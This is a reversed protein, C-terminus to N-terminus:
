PARAGYHLRHLRATSSELDVIFLNDYAKSPLEGVDAPGGLAKILDGITDSHAVVLVDDSSHDRRLEAALKALEDSKRKQVSVGARAAAPAATQQTRQFETAYVAKLPVDGLVRALERARAQGAQTLPPDKKMSGSIKAKEAHRVIFISFLTSLLLPLARKM